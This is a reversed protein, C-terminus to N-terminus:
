LPSSLFHNSACLILQVRRRIQWCSSSRSADLPRPRGVPCRTRPTPPPTQPSALAEDPSFRSSPQRQTRPIRITSQRPLLRMLDFRAPRAPGRPRERVRIQCSGLRIRLLGLTATPMFSISGSSVGLHRSERERRGLDTGLLLALDGYRCILADERCGGLDEREVLHVLEVVRVLLVRWTLMVRASFSSSDQCDILTLLVSRARWDSSVLAASCDVERARM